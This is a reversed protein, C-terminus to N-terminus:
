EEDKLGAIFEEAQFWYDIAKGLAPTSPIADIAGTDADVYFEYLRSLQYPRHGTKRRVVVIELPFGCQQAKLEDDAYRILLYYNDINETEPHHEALFDAVCDYMYRYFEIINETTKQMTNHQNYTTM